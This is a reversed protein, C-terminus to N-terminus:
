GGTPSHGKADPPTSERPTAGSDDHGLKRIQAPSVEFSDDAGIPEGREADREAVSRAQALRESPPIDRKAEDYLNFWPLGHETYTKADIPTPPPEVGTVKRFQASNLIHVLIRGYHDQDWADLGYPDPYIKQRM